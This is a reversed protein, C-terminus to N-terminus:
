LSGDPVIVNEQRLFELTESMHAKLKGPDEGAFLGQLERLIAEEDHAGDCLFFIVSATRNLHYFKGSSSDLLILDNELERCSISSSARFAMDRFRERDKGSRGAGGRTLGFNVM